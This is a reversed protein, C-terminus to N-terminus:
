FFLNNGCLNGVKFFHRNYITDHVGLTLSSYLLDSVTKISDTTSQMLAVINATYSAYLSLSALLLMLTVIRSSIKYPM